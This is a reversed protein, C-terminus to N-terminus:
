AQLGCSSVRFAVVLSFGTRWLLLDWTGCSLGLAALFLYINLFFFTTFVTSSHVDKYVFCKEPQKSLNSNIRHLLM